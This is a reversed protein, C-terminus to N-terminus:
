QKFLQSFSSWYIINKPVMYDTYKHFSFINFIISFQWSTYNIQLNESKDNYLTLLESVEGDLVLSPYLVIQGNVACVTIWSKM